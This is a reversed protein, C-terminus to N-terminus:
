ARRDRNNQAKPENSFVKAYWEPTVQPDLDDGEAQQLGFWRAKHVFSTFTGDGNSENDDTEVRRKCTIPMCLTLARVCGARTGDTSRWGPSNSSEDLASVGGDFANRRDGRTLLVLANLAEATPM